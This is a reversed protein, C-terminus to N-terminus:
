REEAKSGSTSREPALCRITGDVCTGTKVDKKDEGAVSVPRGISTPAVPFEIGRM